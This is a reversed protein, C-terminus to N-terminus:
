QVPGSKTSIVGSKQRWRGWTRQHLVEGGPLLDVEVVPSLNRHASSRPVDQEGRSYLGVNEDIRPFGCHFCLREQSIRSAAYGNRRRHNVSHRWPSLSTHNMSPCIGELVTLRGHILSFQSEYIWKGASIFVSPKQSLSLRPSVRIPKMKISM